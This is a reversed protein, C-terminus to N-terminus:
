VAGTALEIRDWTLADAPVLRSQALRRLEAMTRAQVVARALGHAGGVDTDARRPMPDGKGLCRRTRGGPNAPWARGLRRPLTASTKPTAASPRQPRILASAIWSRRMGSSSTRAATM